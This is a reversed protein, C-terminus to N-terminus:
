EGHAQKHENVHKFYDEVNVKNEQLTVMEKVKDYAKRYIVRDAMQSVFEREAMRKNITGDLFGDEPTINMGYQRYMGVYYVKAEQRIDDETAQLENTEAIKDIILRRVLAEKEAAYKEDINETTYHDTKTTILWRKLFEDPLQISHKEMLVHGIQHDLWLDAENRYYNELNSKIRERYETESKPFDMPGFVEKFYEENLEAVTRRKIDTIILKFKTNLDNVGERAIGLSSSIVGENGNFLKQIDVEMVTERTKGILAKQTDKDEILSAVISVPKDAIGGELPEGADNLETLNAYIIDEDEAKEVDEMKGYRKRAYEIDEDIEKEGVEIIFHELKDKTSISLDFAPALGLDFAFSFTEKNEIDIDSEVHNSSLPYGLIDLKQEEIYNNLADSATQQIEDAIVGKSYLRKVMDMPAKGPRFGKMAANKQIRRLEKEVKESYDAKELNIVVTANLDDIKEFSINVTNYIALLTGFM